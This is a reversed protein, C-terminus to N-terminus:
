QEYNEKEVLKAYQICILDAIVMLPYPHSAYDNRSSYRIYMDIYPYQIAYNSTIMCIKPKTHLNKFPKKRPFVRDFYSGSESFIIILTDSNASEIYNAQDVFKICTFIAKCSTQLDYQLNLAVNESQMYGFAAVNKYNKIDNVLSIIDNDLTSSAIMHKLNDIISLIYSHSLSNEDYEKFNFKEALQKYQMPFIAVQKKLDNFDKLGIDRCFRSISSNSVYCKRALDTLTCDDLSKINEILYKAIKYNNSDKPESNITSLLIIILNFM